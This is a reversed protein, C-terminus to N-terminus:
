WRNAFADRAENPDRKYYKEVTAAIFRDNHLADDGAGGSFAERAM